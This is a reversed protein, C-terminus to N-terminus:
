DEEDTPDAFVAVGSAVLQEAIASDFGAVDGNFYGAGDPGTHSGVFRVSAMKGSLPRESSVRPPYPADPDQAIGQAVLKEALPERFVALEGAVNGKSPLNRILRLRVYRQGNIKWVIKERFSPRSAPNMADM